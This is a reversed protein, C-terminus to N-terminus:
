AETVGDLSRARRLRPPQARQPGYGRVRFTELSLDVAPRAAPYVRFDAPARMMLERLLSEGNPEAQPTGRLLVVSQLGQKRVRRLKSRIRRRFEALPEDVQQALVLMAHGVLHFTRSLHTWDAGREVVLLNLPDM